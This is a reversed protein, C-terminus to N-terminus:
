SKERACFFLAFNILGFVVVRSATLSSLAGDLLRCLQREFRQEFESAIDELEKDSPQSNWDIENDRCQEYCAQLLM